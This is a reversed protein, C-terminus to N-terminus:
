LIFNITAISTEFHPDSLFLVTATGERRIVRNEWRSQKLSPTINM